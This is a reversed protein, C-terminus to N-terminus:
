LIQWLQLLNDGHFNSDFPCLGFVIPSFVLLFQPQLPAPQIYNVTCSIEFLLRMCFLSCSWSLITLSNRQSLSIYFFLLRICSHDTWIIYYHFFHREKIPSLGLWHPLNKRWTNSTSPTHDQCLLPTSNQYTVVTLSIVHNITLVLPVTLILNFSFKKQM